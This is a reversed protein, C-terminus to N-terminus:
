GGLSYANFLIEDDKFDTQKIVVKSGNSLTWETADVEAIKKESVVKGSTPLAKMLPESSTEDKYATINEKQM